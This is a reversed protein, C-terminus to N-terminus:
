DWKGAVNILVAQAEAGVKIGGVFGNTIIQVLSSGTFATVVMFWWYYQMAKFETAITTGLITETSKLQEFTVSLIIM